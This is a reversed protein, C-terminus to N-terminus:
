PRFQGTFEDWLTAPAIVDTGDVSRGFIPLSLGIALTVIAVIAYRLWRGRLPLFHCSKRDM